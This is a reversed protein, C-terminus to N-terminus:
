HVRTEIQVLPM